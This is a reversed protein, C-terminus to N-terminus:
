SNIKSVGARLGGLGLANLVVMIAESWNNQQWGVVVLGYLFMVAMVIYTKKGELAKFM